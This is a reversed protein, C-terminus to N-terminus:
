PAVGRAITTENEDTEVLQGCFEHACRYYTRVIEGTETLTLRHGTVRHLPKCKGVPRFETGIPFRFLDAPFAVRFAEVTGANM